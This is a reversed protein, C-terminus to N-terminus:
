MSEKIIGNCAISSLENVILSKIEITSQNESMRFVAMDL